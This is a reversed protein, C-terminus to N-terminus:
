QRNWYNMRGSPRFLTKPTGDPATVGFTNSPPHYYLKEGDPRVKTLTGQPPNQFFNLAADGYEQASHFEPFEAGHKEWHRELNSRHWRVQPVVAPKAPTNNQPAVAPKAPANNQPAVAPKAPVPNQPVIAPKAPANGQSKRSHKSAAVDIPANAETKAQADQSSVVDNSLVGTASPNQTQSVTEKSSANTMTRGVIAAVILLALVIINTGKKHKM